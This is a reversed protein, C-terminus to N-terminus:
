LRQKQQQHLPTTLYPVQGYYRYPAVDLAKEAVRGDEHIREILAELSPFNAEPRIYGCVVLRLEEGYFDEPFDHLLWPEVTKEANEFYPNYGVSMVMKYVGRDALGAWGLYIGCVHEALVSSFAETPLNATPIGLVKSGRGFGRIVPGGVFWPDIPLAESIWDEFPPLGWKEPRLDLLSSLILDASSYLSRASKTPLSPVALVEMGAAKAAQVGAPSDEVVLCTAPEANLRKAAELFIEPAPKGDKVEDGAVIVSFVETWGKQFGLKVLISTMPSSSAVAVPISHQKLYQLLRAAGPLVKAGAWQNNLLEISQTFIEEASIPLDYDQKLAEAAELPRKGLRKEAGRGDWKKGCNTVIEKSVADVLRETDLLTGDLDLILHTIRKKPPPLPATSIGNQSESDAESAM